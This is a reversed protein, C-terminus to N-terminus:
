VGGAFIVGILSVSSETTAGPPHQSADGSDRTDFPLQIQDRSNVSGHPVHDVNVKFCFVYASACRIAMGFQVSRGGHFWLMKPLNTDFIDRYYVGGRLLHRACIDFHTVDCWIPMSLFLPLGINLLVALTFWAM